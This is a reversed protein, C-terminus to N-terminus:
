ADGPRRLFAVTGTVARAAELPIGAILEHRVRAHEPALRGDALLAPGIAHRPAELLGLRLSRRARGEVLNAPISVAARRLQAQVGFREAVPLGETVRYIEIALQHALRFVELKHPDRPMGAMTCAPPWWVDPRGDSAALRWGHTVQGKPDTV